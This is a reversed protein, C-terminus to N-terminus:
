IQTQKQPITLGPCIVQLKLGPEFQFGCTVIKGVELVVSFGCVAYYICLLFGYRNIESVRVGISNDRFYSVYFNFGSTGQFLLIRPAKLLGAPLSKCGTIGLPVLSSETLVDPSIQV